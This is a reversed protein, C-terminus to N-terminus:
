SHPKNKKKVDATTKAPTKDPATTKKEKVPPTGAVPEIILDDIWATGTTKGGFVITVRAPNGGEEAPISITKSYTKWPRSNNTGAGAGVTQGFYRKRTKESEVHIIFWGWNNFDKIKASFSVKYSTVGPVFKFQQYLIPLKGDAAVLKLAARGAGPMDSGDFQLKAAHKIWSPVIWNKAEEEFNGNKILNEAPLTLAAGLACGMLLLKKDM